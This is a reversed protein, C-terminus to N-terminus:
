ALLGRMDHMYSLKFQTRAVFRMCAQQHIQEMCTNKEDIGRAMDDDKFAGVNQQSM